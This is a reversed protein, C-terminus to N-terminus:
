ISELLISAIQSAACLRDRYRLAAVHSHGNPYETGGPVTRYVLNIHLRVASPGSQSQLAAFTLVLRTIDDLASIDRKPWLLEFVGYDFARRVHEAGASDNLIRRMIAETPMETEIPDADPDECECLDAYAANEVYADCWAQFMYVSLFEQLDRFSRIAQRACAVTRRDPEHGCCKVLDCRPSTPTRTRRPAPLLTTCRCPLLTNTTTGPSRLGAIVETTQNSGVSTLPAHM